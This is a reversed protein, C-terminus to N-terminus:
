SPERLRSECWTIVEQNLKEQEAKSEPLNYYIRGGFCNDARYALL